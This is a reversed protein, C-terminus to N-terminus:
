EGRVLGDVILNVLLEFTGNFTAKGIDNKHLSVFFLVHLLGTIAEPKVQKIIGENQWKIIYPMIEAFDMEIHEEIKERPLKRVLIDYSNGSFLDKFLNNEGLAQYINILLKKIGIRPSSKVLEIDEALSRRIKQGEINLIEFYLEEKSDFFIYFSGQAIGVAKTIDKITTKRLGYKSFLREGEKILANRIKEKERDTFGAPM